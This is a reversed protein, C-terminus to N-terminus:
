HQVIYLMFEQTYITSERLQKETQHKRGSEWLSEVKHIRVSYVFIIWLILLSTLSPPAILQVM